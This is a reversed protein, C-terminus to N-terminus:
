KLKLVLKLLKIHNVLKPYTSKFNDKETIWTNKVARNLLTDLEGKYNLTPNLLLKMYCNDDRLMEKVKTVYKQKDQIM